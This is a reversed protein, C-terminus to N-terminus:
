IDMEKLLYGAGAYKDILFLVYRIDVIISRQYDPLYEIDGGVGEWNRDFNIGVLEGKGNMVPSGSNGGTSHTNVTFAVPLRGDPLAYKGFDRTRYFVKLREPIVFEWNEPDEKQMVGDLTTQSQYFVADRPRYGKKQGYTIRLTSNADPFNMKDGYMELLGQEYDHRASAYAADLTNAAVTLKQREEHVSKAFQIMPDTELAKVSPSQVFASFNSESGFISRAFLEDIYNDINGKYKRKLVTLCTPQQGAPIQSCYEKLMIKAITKDVNPSYDKNFFRRFAATLLRIQEKQAAQDRSKLSQIIPAIDTPASSFEIGRLLAEDIMWTRLRINRRDLVIQEILRVAEIYNNKNEHKAWKLLSTQEQKKTQEFNRADIAWSSGIANKYANTSSSYKGAYQIKIAPDKLMEKLMAEQRLNRVRIRVANDIDRREAVEWSTYYTNTRAPFGIMMAFDNEKLGYLSIKLWKRPHLPRNNESYPAPTGDPAAYIRFLTFDGTHRPWMWNDTDAGFKGISSPPAGVLRIDTYTKKVFMYYQNGSYFPRIEVDTGPHEKLFREGIREKALQNLYRLNLFKLGTSDEEQELMRTVYDTVEVISDIFTVSLGPNPLEEEPRMAWFGNELYNHELTSHNQLQNYGCHHNTLILGNPSIVEGTCGGGFMVIADKLSTGNLNYIDTDNLQLGLAQMDTIKQKKLLNLLWMGEDANITLPLFLISLVLFTNRM